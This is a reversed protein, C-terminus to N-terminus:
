PLSKMGSHPAQLKQNNQLRSHLRRNLIEQESFCPQSITAWAAFSPNFLKYKEQELFTSKGKHEFTNM